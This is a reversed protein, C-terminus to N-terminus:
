CYYFVDSIRRMIARFYLNVYKNSCYKTSCILILNNQNGAMYGEHYSFSPGGAAAAPAAAMRTVVFTHWGDGPYWDGASKFM